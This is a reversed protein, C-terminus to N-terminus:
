PGDGGRLNVGAVVSPVDGERLDLMLRSPPEHGRREKQWWCVDTNGVLKPARKLARYAPQRNELCLVEETARRGTMSSVPEQGADRKRRCERVLQQLCVGAREDKSLASADEVVALLDTRQQLDRIDASLQQVERRLDDNEDRVRELEDTLDDFRREYQQKNNKIADELGKIRSLLEEPAPQQQSM